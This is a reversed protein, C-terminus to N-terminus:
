LLAGKPIQMSICHLSGHQCIVPRCDIAIVERDPYAEALAQIATADAPDNYTPLLVAENIVLYNAYTAPLRDGDDFCAKPWPLPILRFANGEATRFERLQQEMRQLSQYHEDNPDNCTVYVMTNNPCLRALTDIHSDTDDGALYGHDLWLIRRAGLTKQLKKEIQEKNLHPNRNSNLLCESTTLITGQGDSEISGGELIIGPIEKPTKGFCGAQCLKTTVQNDQDAAFKLGWGNFGFDLLAPKDDRLVTIPGYDRTWTDNTSIPYIFVRDNLIGKAQLQQKVSDPEPTAIVVSEFRLIAKTIELYVAAIEALMPQWDTGAHPWALLVADQPEWEAPLRTTTETIKM